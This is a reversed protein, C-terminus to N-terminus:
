LYTRTLVILTLIRAYGACLQLLRFPIMPGLEDVFLHLFQRGVPGLSASVSM